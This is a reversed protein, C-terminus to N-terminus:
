AEAALLATWRIEKVVVVVVQSIFKAVALKDSPYLLQLRPQSLRSKKVPVAMQEVVPMPPVVVVMESPQLLNRVGLVKVHPDLPELELRKELVKERREEERDVVPVTEQHTLTMEQMGEPVVVSLLQTVSPATRVMELRPSKM